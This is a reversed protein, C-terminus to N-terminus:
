ELSIGLEKALDKAVRERAHYLDADSIEGHKKKGAGYLKLAKMMHEKKELINLKERIAERIFEAKTTYKNRKMAKDIHKLFTNELKVCVAEM